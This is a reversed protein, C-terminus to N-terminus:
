GDIFIKGNAFNGLSESEGFACDLPADPLTFKRLRVAEAM